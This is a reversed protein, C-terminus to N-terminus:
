SRSSLCERLCERVAGCRGCVELYLCAHAHWGVGLASVVVAVGVFGREGGVREKMVLVLVVAQVWGMAM